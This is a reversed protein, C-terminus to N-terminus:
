EKKFGDEGSVEFVSTSVFRLGFEIEVGASSSIDSSMSFSSFMTSSSSFLVVSVSVLGASVSGSVKGIAGSDSM